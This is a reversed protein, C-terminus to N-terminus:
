PLTFVIRMAPKTAQTAHSPITTPQWSRLGSNTPAVVPDLAVDSRDDVVVVVVLEPVDEAVVSALSPSLSVWVGAVSDSPELELLSVPTSGAHRSSTAGTPPSHGGSHVPPQASGPVHAISQELSQGASTTQGSPKAHAIM